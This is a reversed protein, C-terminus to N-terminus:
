RPLSTALHAYISYGGVEVDRQFRIGDELSPRSADRKQTVLGFLDCIAKKLYSQEADTNASAAFIPSLKALLNPTQLSPNTTFLHQLEAQLTSPTIEEWM